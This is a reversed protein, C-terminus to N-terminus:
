ERAQDDVAVECRDFEWEMEIFDDQSQVSSTALSM